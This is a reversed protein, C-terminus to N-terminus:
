KFLVIYMLRRLFKKFKELLIHTELSVDSFSFFIHLPICRELPVKTFFNSFYYFYNYYIPCLLESQHTLSLALSTFISFQFCFTAFHAQKLGFKSLKKLSSYQQQELSQNGPQINFFLSETEKMRSPIQLIYKRAWPYVSFPLVQKLKM